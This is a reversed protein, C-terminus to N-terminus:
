YIFCNTILSIKEGKSASDYVTNFLRFIDRPITTDEEETRELLVCIEDQGVSALGKTAFCWVTCKACCDLVVLKLQVHLNKTMFFTVPTESRLQRFLHELSPDSALVKNHIIPHLPGKSDSIMIRSSRHHHKSHKHHDSRTPYEVPPSKLSRAYKHRHSSFSSATGSATADETLDCGPRIGDSFVVQKPPDSRRQDKKKLVGVPVFVTPPPLSPGAQDLPPVTSCYESPNSPNPGTSTVEQTENMEDSLDSSLIRYCVACVREERHDLYELKAKYNTCTGCLVKGCGRCHHKRNFITFKIACLMCSLAESDPIWFPRYSGVRIDSMTRPPEESPSSDLLDDEIPPRHDLVSHTESSSDVVPLSLSVPRAPKESGGTTPRSHDENLQQQNLLHDHIDTSDTLISSNLNSTSINCKVIEDQSEHLHPHNNSPPGQSPDSSSISDKLYNFTTSEPYGNELLSTKEPDSLTIRTSSSSRIDTSNYSNSDTVLPKEDFLKMIAEVDERQSSRRGRGGEGNSDKSSSYEGNLDKSSSYEGNLDKSSSYEGNLDKSSSDEGNLDKSSSDEGSNLQEVSTLNEELSKDCNEKNQTVPDDHSSSSVNLIDNSILKTSSLDTTSCEAMVASDNFNVGVDSPPVCSSSPPLCSSSTESDPFVLSRPGDNSRYGNQEFEHEFYKLQHDCQDLQVQESSPQNVEQAELNDLLHDLDVIFKDM